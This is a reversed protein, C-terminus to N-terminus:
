EIKSCIRSTVVTRDSTGILSKSTTCIYTIDFADEERILLSINKTELHKVPVIKSSTAFQIPNWEEDHVSIEYFGIDARRNFITIKAECLGEYISETLKVYTPTMQHATAVSAWVSVFIAIFLRM